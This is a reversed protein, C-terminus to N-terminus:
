DANNENSINWKDASISMQIRYFADTTQHLPQWPVQPTKQKQDVQYLKSVPWTARLLCKVTILIRVSENQELHPSSSVAYWKKPLHLAM